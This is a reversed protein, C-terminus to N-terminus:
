YEGLNRYVLCASIFNLISYVISTGLVIAYLVNTFIFPSVLILVMIIIYNIIRITHHGYQKDMECKINGNNITNIYTFVSIMALVLLGAMFYIKIVNNITDANFPINAGWLTLVGGISGITLSVAGFTAIMGVMRSRKMKIM